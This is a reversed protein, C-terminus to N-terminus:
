EEEDRETGTGPPETDSTGSEMITETGTVEAEQAEGVSAPAPPGTYPLGSSADYWYGDAPPFQDGFDIPEGPESFFPVRDGDEEPDNWPHEGQLVAGTEPNILGPYDRNGPGHYYFSTM